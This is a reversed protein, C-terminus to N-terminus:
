ACFYIKLNIIPSILYEQFSCMKDTNWINLYVNFSNFTTTKKQHIEM